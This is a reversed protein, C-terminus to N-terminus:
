PNTIARATEQDPKVLRDHRVPHRLDAYNLSGNFLPQMPRAGLAFRTAVAVTLYRPNQESM